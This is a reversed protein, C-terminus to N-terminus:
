DAVSGETKSSQSGLLKSTKALAAIIRPNFTELLPLLEHRIRNRTFRKSFNSRDIRFPVAEAELYQEIQERTFSLLPRVLFPIPRQFPSLGLEGAGRILNLLLTEALDNQTHATVIVTFDLRQRLKEFFRYRIARLASEINKTPQKNPRSVTLPLTHTQCFKKVLQEDRDSDRGRLGYNVHAVHLTFDHKQRLRELLSLLTMSDPGGSVAVIVRSSRPLINTKALVNQFRRVM